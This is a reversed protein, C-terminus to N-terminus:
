PPPSTHPDTSTVSVTAISSLPNIKSVPGLWKCVPQIPTHTPIHTFFILLVWPEAWRLQFSPARTEHHPFVLFFSIDVPVWGLCARSKKRGLREGERCGRCRWRRGKLREKKNGAREGGGHGERREMRRWGAGEQRGCGKQNRGEEREEKKEEGCRERSRGERWAERGGRGDESEGKGEEEEEARQGSPVPWVQQYWHKVLRILSKLKAPREKLFARQLETFCPSFEGERRLNECEQILQVYIQPNPKYDETM